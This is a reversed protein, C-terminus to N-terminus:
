NNFINQKDLRIMAMKKLMTDKLMEERKQKEMKLALGEEFLEQRTKIKLKEKEGIQKLLEMRHKEM